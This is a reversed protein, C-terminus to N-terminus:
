GNSTEGAAYAHFYDERTEAEEVADFRHTFRLDLFEVLGQILPYYSNDESLSDFMKGVAPMVCAGAFDTAAEEDMRALIALVHTLHDPLETTEAVGFRRMEERVKVMYLGRNYEEGFLQWGTDLSCLPNLDFTRIFAEELESLTKGAMNAVFADGHCRLAPEAESLLAGWGLACDQFDEGPYRLLAAWADCLTKCDKM